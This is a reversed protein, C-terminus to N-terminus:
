HGCVLKYELLVNIKLHISCLPFSNIIVNIITVSLLHGLRLSELRCHPSELFCCLQKLGSDDLNNNYSLDLDKLHYPNSKLASFLAVHSITSM